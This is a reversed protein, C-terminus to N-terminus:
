SPVTCPNGVAATRPWRLRRPNGVAATRPWRLRWSEDVAATRPWRLSWPNCISATLRRERERELLETCSAMDIACSWLRKYANSLRTNWTCNCVFHGHNLSLKPVFNRISFESTSKFFSLSKFTNKSISMISFLDSTKRFGMYVFHKSNFENFIKSSVDQM